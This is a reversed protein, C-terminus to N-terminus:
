FFNLIRKEYAEQAFAHFNVHAAGAIVWFEKTGGL